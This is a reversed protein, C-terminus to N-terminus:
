IYIDNHEKILKWAIIIENELYEYDTEWIMNGLVNEFYCSIVNGISTLVMYTGTVTPLEKKILVFGDLDNMM